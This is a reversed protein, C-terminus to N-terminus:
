RSFLCNYRILHSTTSCSRAFYNAVLVPSCKSAIFLQFNASSACVLWRCPSLRFLPGFHLFQSRRSHTFQTRRQFQSENCGFKLACFALTDLTTPLTLSVYFKQIIGSFKLLTPERTGYLCVSIRLRPSRSKRQAGPNKEPHFNLSRFHEGMDICNDRTPESRERIDM